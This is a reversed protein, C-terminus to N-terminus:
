QCTAIFTRRSAQGCHFHHSGFHHLDFPSHLLVAFGYDNLMTLLWRPQDPSLRYHELAHHLSLLSQVANANSLYLHHFFKTYARYALAHDATAEACHIALHSLRATQTLLHKEHQHRSLVFCIRGFRRLADKDNSTGGLSVQEYYLYVHKLTSDDPIAEDDAEQKAEERRFSWKEEDSSLCSVTDANHLYWQEESVMARLLDYLMRSSETLRTTDVQALLRTASDADAFVIDEAARLLRRQPLDRLNWGICGALVLVLVAVIM